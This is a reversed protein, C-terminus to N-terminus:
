PGHDISAVMCAALLDAEEPTAPEGRWMLLLMAPFSERGIAEDLPVGRVIVPHDTTMTIASHWPEAKHSQGAPNGQHTPTFQDTMRVGRHQPRAAALDRRRPDGAGERSGAVAGGTYDRASGP